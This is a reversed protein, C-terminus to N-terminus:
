VDSRHSHFGAGFGPHHHSDSLSHHRHRRGMVMSEQIEQLTPHVKPQGEEATIETLAMWKTQYETCVIKVAVIPGEMLEEGEAVAAGDQFHAVTRIKAKYKLLDGENPGKAPESVPLWQVVQLIGNDLRDGPRDKAGTSAAVRRLWKAGILKGHRGIFSVEFFDQNKPAIGWFYSEEDDDVAREPSFADAYLDINTNVQAGLWMKSRGNVTQEFKGCAFGFNHLLPGGKGCHRLAAARSAADLSRARGHPPRGPARGSWLREAVGLYRPYVKAAVDKPESDETWMNACGGLMSDKNGGLEWDLTKNYDISAVPYDLYVSKMPSAITRFPWSQQVKGTDSMGVPHDMKWAQVVWEKQAGPCTQTVQWQRDKFHDDWMVMSRNLSKLLQGLHCYWSEMLDPGLNSLGVMGAFAKTHESNEWRKTLVEDGGVHIFPGPFVRAVEEFVDRAFDALAAKGVCMIDEYTGVRTKPVEFHDGECALEPYAALAALCHGPTEITPLVTIFLQAAFDVIERVDETSYYEPSWKNSGV